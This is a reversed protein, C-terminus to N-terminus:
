PKVWGDAIVSEDGYFEKNYGETTVNVEYVKEFKKTDLYYACIPYRYQNTLGNPFPIKADEGCFLIVGDKVDYFYRVSMDSNEIVTESTKSEADFRYVNGGDFLVPTHFENLPESEHYDWVNYYLDGGRALFDIVKEAVLTEGADKDNLDVACVTGYNIYEYDLENETEDRMIYLMGEDVAANLYYDNDYLASVGCDYEERIDTFDLACSNIKFSSDIFYVRDNWIGCLGTNTMIDGTDLEVTKKKEIDYYIVRAFGWDSIGMYIKGNCYIAEELYRYPFTKKFGEGTESDYVTMRLTGNGSFNYIVPLLHGEPVITLIRDRKSVYTSPCAIYTPCTMGLVDEHLCDPKPCLYSWEGPENLITTCLTNPDNSYINGDPNWTPLFGKHYVVGDVLSAFTNAHIITSPADTKQSCGSLLLSSLLLFAAAAICLIRILHKSTVYKM